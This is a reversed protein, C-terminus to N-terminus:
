EAAERQAPVVIPWTGTHVTGEVWHRGRYPDPKARLSRWWERLRQWLAAPIAALVLHLGPRDTDEACERWPKGCSECLEDEEAPRDSLAQALGVEDALRAMGEANVPQHLEPAWCCVDFGGHCGSEVEGATPCYYLDPCADTHPDEDDHGADDSLEPLLHEGTPHEVHLVEGDVHRETEIAPLDDTVDPGAHPTKRYGRQWLWRATRADNDANLRAVEIGTTLHGHLAVGVVVGGLAILGPVALMLQSASITFVQSM